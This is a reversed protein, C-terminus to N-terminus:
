PRCVPASAAVLCCAFCGTPKSASAPKELKTFGSAIAASLILLSVWFFAHELMAWTKGKAQLFPISQPGQAKEWFDGFNKHEITSSAVVGGCMGAMVMFALALYLPVRNNETILASVFWGAKESGLLTALGAAASLYIGIHFKTYDYLRELRKDDPASPADPPPPLVPSTNSQNDSM